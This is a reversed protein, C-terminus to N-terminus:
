FESNLTNGTSINKALAFQIRVKVGRLHIKPNQIM